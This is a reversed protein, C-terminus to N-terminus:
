TGDLSKLLCLLIIDALSSTRVQGHTVDWELIKPCGVLTKTQTDFSQVGLLSRNNQYGRALHM